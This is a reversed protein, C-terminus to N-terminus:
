GGGADEVRHHAYWDHRASLDSIGMDTALRSIEALPYAEEPSPAERGSVEGEITVLYRTNPTLDVLQDPRLVEGDFLVRVTKMM